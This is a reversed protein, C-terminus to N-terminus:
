DQEKPGRENVTFLQKYYPRWAAWYEVVREGDWGEVLWKGHPPLKPESTCGLLLLLALIILVRTM